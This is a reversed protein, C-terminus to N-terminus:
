QPLAGFMPAQAPIARARRAHVSRVAAAVAGTSSPASDYTIQMSSMSPAPLQLGSFQLMLVSSDENGGDILVKMIGAPLGSPIVTRLTAGYTGAEGYVGGSLLPLPQVSPTTGTAVLAGTSDYVYVKFTAATTGQNYVVFSVVNTVGDDVGEASWTPAAANDWAIPVTALWPHTPQQLYVLQPSLNSCTIADPCYYIAYVTGTSTPGYSPANSTAGLIDIESPQNAALAFSVENGSTVAAGGNTTTDVSLNSGTSDYVTYDVGIPGTSPGGTRIKSTWGGGAAFWIFTGSVYCSYGIVAGASNTIAVATEGLSSCNPPTASYYTQGHSAAAALAILGLLHFFKNRMTAEKYPVDWLGNRSEAVARVSLFPSPRMTISRM